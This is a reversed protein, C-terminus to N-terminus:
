PKTASSKSTNASARRRQLYRATGAAIMVGLAVATPLVYNKRVPASGNEDPSPSPDGSSQLTLDNTDRPRLRWTDGQALAIGAVVGRQGVPPRVENGANSWLAVTIESSGDDFTFNKGDGGTVEGVVQVLTGSSTPTLEAIQCTRMLPPTGSSIVRIASADKAKLRPEDQIRSVTGSVEVTDGLALPPFDSRYQYVQMGGTEDALYFFQKGIQGPLAIVTGVATRAANVAAARVASVPSVRGSGRVTGRPSPSPKPSAQPSAIPTPTKNPSPSASVAAGSGTGSGSGASTGAITSAPLPPANPTPSPLPTPTATPSPTPTAAPTSAPTPTAIANPAGPTMNATVAFDALSSNTVAGDRRRAVSQGSEGTPANDAIHADNWNGYSVENIVVNGEDLVLIHDGDNNLSGAPEVILFGGAPLEGSITKKAGAGEMLKWGDLKAPLTGANYLEVWEKQGSAPDACFENIVVSRSYRQPVPTPDPPPTPTPLPTPTAAVSTDTTPTPTLTPTTAPPPATAGANSNAQGPTSGSANPWWNTATYDTLTAHARELSTAPAPLYTFQEIFNGANDKLGIEEGSEKLTGWSSDLVIGSFGPHDALFVDAKQAIIAYTNAPINFDGQQVTLGHNTANEWFKWGTLDVGSGGTNYIEVWEHDTTEYAGIETIVVQASVATPIALLVAGALTSLKALMFINYCLCATPNVGDGSNAIILANPM